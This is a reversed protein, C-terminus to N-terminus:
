VVVKHPCYGYRGLSNNCNDCLVRFGEPYNNKKLWDYFNIRIAKLHKNGGGEIHDIALFEWRTEGCCACKNGYHKIVELKLNHNREKAKAKIEERHKERYQKKTLRDRAISAEITRRKRGRTLIEERHSIYYERFHERHAAHYIRNYERIKEKQAISEEM